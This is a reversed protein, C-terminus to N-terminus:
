AAVRLSINQHSPINYVSSIPLNLRQTKPHKIHLDYEENILKILPEEYKFAFDNLRNSIEHRTLVQKLGETLASNKVTEWRSLPVNILYIDTEVKKGDVIEVITYYCTGLQTLKGKLIEQARKDVVEEEIERILADLSNEGREVKGGVLALKGRAEKIPYTDPKLEFYFEGIEKNYIIAAAGKNTDEEYGDEEVESLYPILNKAFESSIHEIPKVVIISAKNESKSVLAELGAKKNSKTNREERVLDKGKSSYVESRKTYQSPNDAQESHETRFEKQDSEPEYQETEQRDCDDQNPEEVKAGIGESEM